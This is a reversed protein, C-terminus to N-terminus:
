VFDMVDLKALRGTTPDYKCSGCDGTDGTFRAKLVRFKITNRENVDEATMNRAFAIIDFCIQKISGSGKIDDLSPLRGEEFPKQQSNGKRLHSIIGLWINHKKTIKLLESMVYDVAENGTKGDAGESVAITIHDLIIYKCGILALHEIKDTLSEDSVSGQHDLLILREDGFVKQFGSYLEEETVTDDRPSKRIAMGIFKEATDGVSEELSVMGVKSDTKSLIELVTEKIVTSKGSGTGSTFLVIEGERMGELKSNLGALCDPYPVSVTSKRRKFQEWIAEGKVIGAPSYPQADFVASMLVASGDQTLVESPDKRPLKAVYVKDFGVIRCAEETAKKGPEDQDLMLIVKEFTRLWDRQNILQKVQSASALSVVPYFKTYKDYIAQAVSMADLEGETIVIYRSGSAVNTGFLEVDKFDGHTQFKKPLSRQKYAVVQRDKTYPYFHSIINGSEDYEVKVGFHEAVVKKIGREQFGRSELAHIQDLDFTDQTSKSVPKKRKTETVSGDLKTSESCVFCHGYEDGDKYGLGDSSGCKPCSDYIWQAM